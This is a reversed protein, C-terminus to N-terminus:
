KNLIIKYSRAKEKDSVRLIYLGNELDNMDIRNNGSVLFTHIVRKGTTQFIEATDYGNNQLSLVGGSLMYSLSEKETEIRNASKDSITIYIRESVEDYSDNIYLACFYKGAPLEGPKVTIYGETAGYTYYFGDLEDKNPDKGELFFGVWDKPTGPGDQYHIHIEEDIDFTDKEAWVSSIKDGISFYLRERPEFYEGRTFYNVFYYGKGLEKGLTMEGSNQKGTYDWSDSLDATGPIKGMKYIGIWDNDLGPANKFNVKIGEGEQYSSKEISLEPITSIKSLVSIQTMGRLELLKIQLSELLGSANSKDFPNLITTPPLVKPRPIM